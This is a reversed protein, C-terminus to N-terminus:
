SKLSREIQTMTGRFEALIGAVCDECPKGRVFGTDCCEECDLRRDGPSYTHSMIPKGEQLTRSGPITSLGRLQVWLM